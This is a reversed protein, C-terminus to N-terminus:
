KPPKYTATGSDPFGTLTASSAQRCTGPDKGVYPTINVWSTGPLVNVKTYVPGTDGDMTKVTFDLNKGVNEPNAGILAQITLIGLPRSGRDHTEAFGRMVFFAPNNVPDGAALGFCSMTVYTGTTVTMTNKLWRITSPQDARYTRLRRLPQLRQIKVSTDHLGSDTQKVLEGQQVVAGTVPCGGSAAAPTATPVVAVGALLLAACTWRRGIM